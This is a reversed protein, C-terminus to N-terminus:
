KSSIGSEDIDDEFDKKKLDRESMKKKPAKKEIRDEAQKAVQKEKKKEAKKVSPEPKTEVVTDAKPTMKEEPIKKEQVKAEVEEVIEAKKPEKDRVPQLSASKPLPVGIPPQSTKQGSPVAS